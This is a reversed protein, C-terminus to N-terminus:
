HVVKRVVTAHPTAIRVVYVGPALTTLDLSTEDGSRVDTLTHRYATTGNLASVSIDAREVAANFLIRWTDDTKSLTVPEAYLLAPDTTTNISTADALKLAAKLGEYADIKGYGAKPTWEVDAGGTYEDRKATTRIIEAIDEPTLNPNAQLWLAIIGTVAPTAMSTGGGMGYFENDELTAQSFDDIINGTAPDVACIVSNSTLDLEGGSPYKNFASTINNGPAAVTPKVDSGVSPGPSSFSSLTGVETENGDTVTEGTASTWRVATNYSAVGIGRPVSAGGQGVLYETNGEIGYGDMAIFEGCALECWAHFTANDDLAKVRFGLYIDESSGAGVVQALTKISTYCQYHEKLNNESIEGDIGLTEYDSQAIDEATESSANYCFPTLEFHTQGDTANGWFDMLMEEDSNDILLTMEEGKALTSSVHLNYSGENGMAGVLIRGEGLLANVTKDYTTTGDHPGMQSGLSLNLVMPKDYEDAVSKVWQINEIINAESLATTALVLDAEPAMGYYPNNGHKSGAAIGAVHTGHGDASVDDDCGYPIDTTPKVSDKVHNWIALERPEGEDNLFAPHRWEFGADVVGVIVGKGTFPTELGTGSHVADVNSHQRSRNNLLKVQRSASIHRVSQLAAVREVISLPLKATLTQESIVTAEGGFQRISDATAAASYSDANLSIIFKATTPEAARTARATRQQQLLTSTKADWKVGRQVAIQATATSTMLACLALAFLLLKKM